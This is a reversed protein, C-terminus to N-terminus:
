PSHDSVGPTVDREWVFDLMTPTLGDADPQEGSAPTLKYEKKLIPDSFFPNEAFHQQNTANIRRAGVLSHHFARIGSYLM